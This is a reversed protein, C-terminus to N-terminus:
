PPTAALSTRFLATGLADRVNEIPWQRYLVGGYSLQISCGGELRCTAPHELPKSCSDAAMLVRNKGSRANETIPESPSQNANIPGGTPGGNQNGTLNSAGASWHDNTVQLYHDEAVKSSHGMWEDVVHSPFAEQLETRRTSRLNVFTKPWPKCGAREIIRKL